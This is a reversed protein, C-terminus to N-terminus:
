ILEITDSHHGGVVLLKSKGHETPWPCTGHGMRRHKMPCKPVWHGMRIDLNFVSSEEVEMSWHLPDSCGGCAIIQGLHSAITANKHPLPAVREWKRTRLDLAAVEKIPHLHDKMGGGVYALGNSWAASAWYTPFPISPLDNWTETQPDYVLAKNIAEGNHGGFRYIHNKISLISASGKSMRTNKPSDGFHDWCNNKDNWYYMKNDMGVRICFHNNWEFINWVPSDPVSVPFWILPQECLCLIYVRAAAWPCAMIQADCVSAVCNATMGMGALSPLKTTDIDLAITKSAQPAGCKCAALCSTLEKNQKKLYMNEKEM